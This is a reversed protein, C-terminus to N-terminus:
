EYWKESANCVLKGALLSALFLKLHIYIYNIWQILLFHIFILPFFTVWFETAPKTNYEDLNYGTDGKDDEIYEQERCHPSSFLSSAPQGDVSGVIVLLPVGAVFGFSSGNSSSQWYKSKVGFFCPVPPLPVGVAGGQHQNHDDGDEQRHLQGQGGHSRQVCYWWLLFWFLKSSIKHHDMSWLKSRFAKFKLIESHLERHLMDTSHISPPSQIDINHTLESRLKKDDTMFGYKLTM